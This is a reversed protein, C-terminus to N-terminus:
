TLAAPSGSGAGAPMANAVHRVMQRCVGEMIDPPLFYDPYKQYFGGSLARAAFDADGTKDFTREILSRYQTASDIAQEIFVRAETGVVYGYHDACIYDVHLNRMKELSQQFMTFNSNGTAIITEKYPIGGADSAFLVKLQPVYASVSCSSHGPTELIRVELDGLDLHDGEFVSTGTVDDRWELDYAGYVEETGMRRAVRRSFENVTDIAKPMELIEWARASGIIDISPHHRKFFPVIGVHDFHAHLMLLKTIRTESIGFIKLQSLVDSVIYGIGGSVLMSENSGELLYVCSEERGLFWVQQCVRGPQRIRM